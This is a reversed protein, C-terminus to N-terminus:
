SAHERPACRVAVRRKRESGVNRENVVFLFCCYYCDFHNFCVFADDTTTKNMVLSVNSELEKELRQQIKRAVVLTGEKGAFPGKNVSFFMSLVPPDIPNCPIAETVATSCVTQTATAKTLGSVGVIDGAQGEPIM